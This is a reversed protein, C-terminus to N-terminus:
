EYSMYRLNVQTWPAFTTCSGPVQDGDFYVNAFTAGTVKATMLTAYLTKCASVTTNGALSGPVVWEADTSCIGVATNMSSLRLFLNGPQHYALQVVTGTCVISAAGAGHALLCAISLFLTRALSNKM